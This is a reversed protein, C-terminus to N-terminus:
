TWVCQKHQQKCILPDETKQGSCIERAFGSCDWHQTAWAPCRSGDWLPQQCILVCGSKCAASETAFHQSLCGEASAQQPEKSNLGCHLEYICTRYLVLSHNASFGYFSNCPLFSGSQFDILELVTQMLVLLVRSPLELYVRCLAQKATDSASTHGTM